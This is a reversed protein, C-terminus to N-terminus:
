RVIVSDPPTVAAPFRTTVWHNRIDSRRKHHAKIAEKEVRHTACIKRWLRRPLIQRRFLLSHLLVDARRAHWGAGQLAQALDYADIAVSAALGPAFQELLDAKGTLRMRLERLAQMEQRFFALHHDLTDDFGLVRAMEADFLPSLEPATRVIRVAWERVHEADEEVQPFFQELSATAGAVMVFDINLVSAATRRERREQSRAVVLAVMLAGAAGILAGILTQWERAWEVSLDFM